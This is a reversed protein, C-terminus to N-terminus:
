GRAKRIKQGTGSKRTQKAPLSRAYAFAEAVLQALEAAPRTVAGPLAVYERMTRGMATFPGAGFRERARARGAEDLRLILNQEHVGAFMNGNVFACPCGFMKRREVEAAQPLSADFRAVLAQAPKEWAV